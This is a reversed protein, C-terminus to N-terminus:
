LLCSIHYYKGEYWQMLGRPPVDCKACHCICNESSKCNENSPDHEKNM